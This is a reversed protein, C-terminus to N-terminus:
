YLPTCKLKICPNVNAILLEYDLIECSIYEAKLGNTRLREGHRTLHDPCLLIIIGPANPRMAAPSSWIYTDPAIVETM